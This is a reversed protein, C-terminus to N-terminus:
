GRRRRHVKRTERVNPNPPQCNRTGHPGQIERLHCQVRLRGSPVRGLGRCPRHPVGGRPAPVARVYSGHWPPHRTEISLCYFCESVMLEFLFVAVNWYRTHVQNVPIETDAFRGQHMSSLTAGGWEQGRAQSWRMLAGGLKDYLSVVMIYEGRPLKDRVGRLQNLKVQLRILQDVPTGNSPCGSDATSVKGLGVEM